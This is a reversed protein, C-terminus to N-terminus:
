IVGFIFFAAFGVVFGMGVLSMRWPVVVLPLPLCRSCPSLEACRPCRQLIM